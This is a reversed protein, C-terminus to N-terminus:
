DSNSIKKFIILKAQFNILPYLELIEKIKQM